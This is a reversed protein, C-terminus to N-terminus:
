VTEAALTGDERGGHDAAPLRNSSRRDAAGHRGGARTRRPIICLGRVYRPGTTVPKIPLTRMVEIVHDLPVACLQTGARFSSGEATARSKRTTGAAPSATEPTRSGIQTSAEGIMQRDGRGRASPSLAMFWAHM